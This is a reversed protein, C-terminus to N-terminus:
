GTPAKRSLLREVCGSWIGVTDRKEGVGFARPRGSCPRSNALSEANIPAQGRILAVIEDLPRRIQNAFDSESLGRKVLIAAITDGPPSVWDPSFATDNGM